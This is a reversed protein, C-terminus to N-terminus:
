AVVGPPVAIDICVAEEIEDAAEIGDTSHRHRLGRAALWAGTAVAGVAAWPAIAEPDIRERVQRMRETPSLKHELEQLKGKLADRREIINQEIEEPSRADIGTTNM